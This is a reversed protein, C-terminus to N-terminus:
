APLSRVSITGQVVVGAPDSVTFPSYVIITGDLGNSQVVSDGDIRAIQEGNSYYRQWPAENQQFTANLDTLMAPSPTTIQADTLVIPSWIGDAGNDNLNAIGTPAGTVADVLLQIRQPWFTALFPRVTSRFSKFINM